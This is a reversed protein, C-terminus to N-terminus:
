GTAAAQPGGPQLGGPGGEIKGIYALAAQVHGAGFPPCRIPTNALGDLTNQCDFRPMSLVDIWIRETPMASLFSLLPYLVNDQESRAAAFLAQHWTEFPVVQVPYGAQQIAEIVTDFRTPQPNMVHYIRGVADRQLSLRVIAQAMFDVPALNEEKDISPASGLQISGVIMRMMFDDHNSAGTVSHGMIRSPRYISVPLGRARAALVLHEAAWKTQVYGSDVGDIPGLAADERVRGNADLQATNVVALTSVYHLPKLRGHCALRIAEQTGLVNAARLSAYPYLFNVLAGNHYVGDIRDALAAFEHEDLGFCSQGLDGIVPVIREALRDDWLAYMELTDRLRQLGAAPSRARVLCHIEATTARLLEDLLFAGLFGTAGTVLVAGSM